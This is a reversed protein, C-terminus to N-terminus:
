ACGGGLQDEWLVRHDAPDDATNRHQAKREVRHEEKDYALHKAIPPDTQRDYAQHDTVTRQGPEPLFYRIRIRCPLSWLLGDASRFLLTKQEGNQTEYEQHDAKGAIIEQRLQHAHVGAGEERIIEIVWLRPPAPHNACLRETSTVNPFIM